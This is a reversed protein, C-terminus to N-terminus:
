RCVALCTGSLSDCGFNLACDRHTGCQYASSGSGASSLCVSSSLSCGSKCASGDVYPDTGEPGEIFIRIGVAIDGAAGGFIHAHIYPNDTGVLADLSPPFTVRFGTGRGNSVFSPSDVSKVRWGNKLRFDKYAEPSAVGGGVCLIRFLVGDKRGAAPSWSRDQWDNVGIRTCGQRSEINDPFVAGNLRAKRYDLEQTVLKPAEHVPLAFVAMRVNNAQRVSDEAQTNQPDVVVTIDLPIGALNAPIALPVAIDVPTGPMLRVPAPASMDLVPVTVPPHVPITFRVRLTWPVDIALMSHSLLRFRATVDTFSADVALAALEVDPQIVRVFCDVTATVNQRADAAAFALRQWGPAVANDLTVSDSGLATAGSAHFTAQPDSGATWHIPSGAVIRLTGAADAGTTSRGDFEVGVAMGPMRLPLRPDCMNSQTSHDSGAHLLVVDGTGMAPGLVHVMTLPTREGFYMDVDKVMQWQFVYDGAVGPVAVPITFQTTQGPSLGGFPNSATFNSRSTGWTLNNQPSQSGLHITGPSWSTSGSNRMIVIVNFSPDGVHLTTPLPQGAATQLSVFAANDQAETRTGALLLASAFVVALTHGPRRM